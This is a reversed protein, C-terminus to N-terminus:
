MISCLASEERGKIVVNPDTQYNYDSKADRLPSKSDESKPSNLEKENQKRQNLSMMDLSSEKMNLKLLIPKSDKKSNQKLEIKVPQDIQELKGNSNTDQEDILDDRKVMDLKDGTPEEKIKINELKDRTDEGQDDVINLVTKKVLNSEDIPSDVTRENVIAEDKEMKEIEERELKISDVKFDSEIINEKDESKLEDKLIAKEELKLEDNVIKDDEISPDYNELMSDSIRLITEEGKISMEEENLSKNLHDNLCTPHYYKGEENIVANELKWEEEDDCWRQNFKEYCITCINLSDDANAKILPIQVQEKQEDNKLQNNMDFMVATQGNDNEEEMNIEKYKLWLEDPLYWDRNLNLTKFTNDRIKRNQRFHWDLHASYKSKGKETKNDFRRSCNTCQTGSYLSDILSQRKIKLSASELLLPPETPKEEVPASKEKKNRKFKPEERKITVALSEDIKKGNQQHVSIQDNVLPATVPVYYPNLQSNISVSSNFPSAQLKTSQPVNMLPAILPNIQPQQPYLQNRFESLNLNNNFNYNSLNNLSPQMSQMVQQTQQQVSPQSYKQLLALWLDVCQQDSLKVTPAPLGLRLTHDNMDGILKCVVPDGGFKARYIQNNLYIERAPAGFKIRQEFNNHYFIKWQNDFPLSIVKDDIYVNVPPGEFRISRPDLDVPRILILKDFPLDPLCNNLVIASHDDLYFLKRIKGDVVLKSDEPQSYLTPQALSSQHNQIPPNNLLNFMANNQIFPQQQNLRYDIDKAQNLNPLNNFNSFNNINTLQQNSVSQISTSPLAHLNSSQMSNTTNNFPINLGPISNNIAQNNLVSLSQISSIDLLKNSLDSLSNLNNLSSMTSTTQNSSSIPNSFDIQNNNLNFNKDIQNNFNNFNNATSNIPQNNQNNNATSNWNPSRKREPSQSRQGALLRKKTNLHELIARTDPKSTTATSIPLSTAEKNSSSQFNNPRDERMQNVAINEKKELPWNRDLKYHIESDIQHIISEPFVNKWTLRTNFLLKRTKEDVNEFIHRFNKVLNKSFLEIYIEKCLDGKVNKSISDILYLLLLKQSSPVEHIRKEILKVIGKAINLKDETVSTDDAVNLNEEALMTLMAIYPKSNLRLDSLSSNYQQLADNENAAM